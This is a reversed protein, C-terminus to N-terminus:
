TRVPRPRVRGGVHVSRGRPTTQRAIAVPRKLPCRPQYHALVEEVFSRSGVVLTDSIFRLRQGIRLDVPQDDDAQGSAPRGWADPSRFILLQQYAAAAQEWTAPRGLSGFLLQLGARAERNGFMAETYGCWAYTLPEDTIGARVSNLDIYTTVLELVDEEAAFLVSKFRGDWLTGRRQYRENYSQTFTEKVTKVYESVDYMRRTYKHWLATEAEKRGQKRYRALEATIEVVKRQPYLRQLRLFLEAEDLPRAKPVHVLAHFHNDLITYTVVTIGSFAAVDYILDRLRSKEEKDLLRRREIVRSMVHYYAEGPAKLRPLRM